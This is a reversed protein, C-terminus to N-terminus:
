KSVKDHEERRLMVEQGQGQSIRKSLFLFHTGDINSLHM